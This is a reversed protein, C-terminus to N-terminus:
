KKRPFNRSEIFLRPKQRSKATFAADALKLVPYLTAGHRM